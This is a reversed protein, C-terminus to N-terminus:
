DFIYSHDAAGTDSAPLNSGDKGQSVATSPRSILISNELEQEDTAVAGEDRSHGAVTGAAAKASIGQKSNDIVSESWQDVIGLVNEIAGAAGSSAQNAFSIVHSGGKPLDGSFVVSGDLLTQILRAGRQNHTRSKNFNFIRLCSLQVPHSFTLTITAVDDSTDQKNIIHRQPALWHHLDDKTNNHLDLLNCVQRPDDGYGPLSRLDLPDATIESVAVSSVCSSLTDLSVSQQHLVVPYLILKMDSDYIEIGNLGVYSNDGWTSLIRISLVKGMPMQVASLVPLVNHSGNRQLRAPITNLIDALDSLVNNVKDNVSQIRQGRKTAPITKKDEKLELEKATSMNWNVTTEKSDCVEGLSISGKLVGNDHVVRDLRNLNNYEAFSLADLSRRIDGEAAKDSGIVVIKDGAISDEGLLCSLSANAALSAAPRNRRPHRRTKKSPSDSMGGAPSSSRPSGIVKKSAAKDYSAMLSESIAPVNGVVADETAGTAEAKKRSSRSSTARPVPTSLL